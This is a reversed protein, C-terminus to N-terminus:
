ASDATRRQLSKCLQKMQHVMRLASEVLCGGDQVWAPLAAASCMSSHSCGSTMSSLAAAAAVAASPEAARGTISNSRCNNKECWAANHAAAAIYAQQVQQLVSAARQLDFACHMLQLQLGVHQNPAAAAANQEPGDAPREAASAAPVGLVALQQEGKQPVQEQEQEQESETDQQLKSQQRAGEEGQQQQLQQATIRRRSIISSLFDAFDQWSFGSNAALLRQVLEEFEEASATERHLLCLL